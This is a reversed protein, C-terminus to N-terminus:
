RPSFGYLCGFGEPECDGRNTPIVYAREAAKADYEERLPNAPELTEPERVSLDGKQQYTSHAGDQM